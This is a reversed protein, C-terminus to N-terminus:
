KLKSLAMRKEYYILYGPYFGGNHGTIFETNLERRYEEYLVDNCAIDNLREILMGGIDEPIMAMFNCLNGAIKKVPLMTQYIYTVLSEVTECLLDSRGNDIFQLIRNSVSDFKLLIEDPKIVHSNDKIYNCFLLANTANIDGAIMPKVLSELAMKEWGKMKEDLMFLTSSVRSWAHPSPFVHGKNLADYDFVAHPFAELYGIVYPHGLEELGEKVYKIYSLPETRCCFLRFRKRLAAEGLLDVVQYNKDAPNMAAVLKTEPPLIFDGFKREDIVNFFAKVTPTQGRNIEDFFIITDPNKLYKPFDKHPVFKYSSHDDELHIYGVMDEKELNALKVILYPVNLEKALSKIIVTKGVGADGIVLPVVHPNLLFSNRILEKIQSINYLHVNYKEAILEMGIKNSM